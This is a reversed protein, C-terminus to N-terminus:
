LRVPGVRLERGINARIEDLGGSFYFAETPIDDLKGDLIDRCTQLAEAASVTVGPRGTYREAVGFPQTFYNQLKLARERVDAQLSAGDKTSWLAALAERARKATEVHENGAAQQELLRSRSAPVDVCPYVKAKACDHSLRLVVDVPALAALRASTWPGEDARLFFTQVSGATGESYGEKKIDEAPSNPWEASPPPMMVFMTLRERCGSLRRVIEEMVVTIGSGLDGAIALTGGAVLPCTVDIVKIGTELFTPESVIAHGALAGVTRAFEVRAVPQSGHQGSSLVTSGRALADVPTAALGRVLGRTPRQAVQIKVGRRNAEDSVTLEALIDPTATPDFLVEVVNGRAEILRGIRNVFDDPLQHERLTDTVMTLMREKLQARAAHLRNNVTALPLNLFTAIDQHSCEHVFFLTAPERLADPLTALAALAATARQRSDIQREPGPEETEVGEAETLTHTSVQKHRLVRFAHHRVIGRLWAPFAAPDAITPLGAWAAIFAEQVVDQARDFDHVLTLASGFAAQQFRRMLAVFANVDGRAALRVLDEYNM